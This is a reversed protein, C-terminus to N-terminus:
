YTKSSIMGTHHTLADSRKQEAAETLFYHGKKLHVRHPLCVLLRTNYELQFEVHDM